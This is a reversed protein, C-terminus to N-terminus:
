LSRLIESAKLHQYEASIKKNIRTALEQAKRMLSQVEELNKQHQSWVDQGVIKPFDIKTPAYSNEYDELRKIRTEIDKIGRAAPSRPAGSNRMWAKWEANGKSQNCKGCSPVLNQIESIYGTPQKDKVIPRLHDWESMADGCYVCQVADPTMGLIALARRVDENSPQIVPIISNVFANTISSSRGTIKMPVPMKFPETM